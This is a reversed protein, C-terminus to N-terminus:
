LRGARKLMPRPDDCLAIRCGREISLDVTDEYEREGFIVKLPLHTIGLKKCEAATIDAGSDVVFKIAM